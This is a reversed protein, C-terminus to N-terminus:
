ITRTHRNQGRLQLSKLKIWNGLSGKPTQHMWQWMFSVHISTFQCSMIHISLDEARVRPRAWTTIEWCRRNRLVCLFGSERELWRDEGSSCIWWSSSNSTVATSIRQLSGYEVRTLWQKEGFERVKEVGIVVNGLHQELAEHIYVHGLTTSSLAHLPPGKYGIEKDERHRGKQEWLGSLFAGGKGVKRPSM